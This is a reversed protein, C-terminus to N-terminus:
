VSILNHLYQPQNTSNCTQREVASKEIHFAAFASGATSPPLDFQCRLPVEVIRCAESSRLRAPSPKTSELTSQRVDVTATATTTTAFTFQMITTSLSCRLSTAVPDSRGDISAVCCCCCCCCYYYYYSQQHFWRLSYRKSGHVCSLDRLDTVNNEDGHCM